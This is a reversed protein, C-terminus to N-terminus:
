AHSSQGTTTTLASKRRDPFWRISSKRIEQSSNYALHGYDPNTGLNRYREREEKTGLGMEEFKRQLVELSTVPSIDCKKTNTM